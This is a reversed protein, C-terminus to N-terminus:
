DAGLTKEALELANALAIEPTKLLNPHAITFAADYATLRISAFLQNGKLAYRAWRTRETVM